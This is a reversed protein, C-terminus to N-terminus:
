LHSCPPSLSRGKFFFLMLTLWIYTQLSVDAMLQTTIECDISCQLNSWEREVLPFHSSPWRSSPNCASNRMRMYVSVELFCTNRKSWTVQWTLPSINSECSFRFRQIDSTRCLISSDNRDADHECIFCPFLILCLYLSFSSSDSFAVIHSQSKIFVIAKMDCSKGVCASSRYVLIFLELRMRRDTWPVVACVILKNSITFNQKTEKQFTEDRSSM